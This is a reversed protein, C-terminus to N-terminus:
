EIMLKCLKTIPRKLEGTSTKLTVVRVIGDQDPHVKIVRGRAWTLSSANEDKILVLEGEKFNQQQHQWKSRKQLSTLYELHWRKWFGRSMNQLLEWRENLKLTVDDTGKDPVELISCGILFHGPTLISLDDPDNNVPTLPRSNVIAEIQILLTQMEEFTPASEGLVRRLHTKVSKVGAEWLGGFHPASPPITHWEINHSGLYESVRENHTKSSLIQFFEDFRRRAGVFNTANDSYISHPVGRRGAFRKLSALFADTSLDSVVELHIAKTAMCVFLCIYAKLRKSGRGKKSSISIPGAYDVGVNIFARILTVRPSPLNGMIQEGLKPRSKVCHVCSNSIKKIADRAGIIWYKTRTIFLLTSPNPHLYKNHLHRILMETFQHQKPLIVPHKKLYAVNSNTLRGGVRVLGNEDIIPSLSLLKSSRKIAKNKQLQHIEEHFADHQVYKIILNESRQLHQSSIYPVKRKRCLEAFRICSSVVRLMLTYSSFKEIVYKIPWNYSVPIVANTSTLVTKRREITTTEVPTNEYNPWYSTSKQLFEPGNWWIKHNLLESPSLGRSACDAPNVKTPVHQWHSSPIQDIIFSTRNGVFCNWNRPVDSLWSLVVNSDSWAYLADPSAEFIGAVKILLKTLLVAGCLELRPISLQKLPSVKTKAAILHVSSSGNSTTSRAYVVASYAKESADCFGHFQVSHISQMQLFRPIRISSLCILENRATHWTRNIHDPLPDDWGIKTLWLSQLLIKFTITAPSLWGLPDFIKGCESLLRRKTSPEIQLDPVSFTFADDNTLWCIGLTKVYVQPDEFSISSGGRKENPIKSMLEPSNSRWQRLSFGAHSLTTSLDSYLTIAEEVSDCGSLLDDVYFDSKIIKKLKFPLKENDKPIQHLSRIALYASCTLGYTVTTLKFHQMESNPNERWVIRQYNQHKPHVAIQRYMKEIDSVFAIKHRRFRTLISFLDDQITPGTMLVDNLSLGTTSKCSGDFVVRLKKSATGEKFVSHHPLYYVKSRETLVERDSIRLMHGLKEYERMFKSYEDRLHTDRQFKREMAIMRSTAAKLGSGLHESNEKLPLEVLYRGNTFKHTSSFHEECIDDKNPIDSTIEEVEWFRRLLQCIDEANIHITYCATQSNSQQDAAGAVIWGFISDLVFLNPELM